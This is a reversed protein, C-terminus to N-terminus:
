TSHYSYIKIRLADLPSRTCNIQKKREVLIATLIFWLYFIPLVTKTQPVGGFVMNRPMGLLVKVALPVVLCLLFVSNMQVM